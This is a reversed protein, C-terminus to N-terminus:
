IPLVQYALDFNAMIRHQTDQNATENIIWYPNHTNPLKGAETGDPNKYYKLQDLTMTRPMITYMYLPNYSDQNPYRRNKTDNRIFTVKSDLTLNKVLTNFFRLTLTNKNVVNQKEVVDNANVRTFSVRYNNDINGGELAINNTYTHATQYFDYINDPQPSYTYMNGDLGIYPQGLHPGGLSRGGAQAVQKMMADMSPIGPYPYPNGNPDITVLASRTGGIMQTMHGVGFSNQFDPWQSIYRYMTNSNVSLKFRGDKAKKTTIIIVGNAARSGYLAAANPGKLVDISEIDDPNIDAAGNGMDLRGGDKNIGDSGDNNDIQMGDVVFLPQNNGTFSSNGRIVIRASGTSSSPPTVQVGAVKGALASVINQDRVETMTEADVRQQAVTLSRNERKIGLASVVVESLVNADSEMVVNMEQKNGISLTQTKMGIFSFVLEKDGPQVTIAYKGDMDTTAGRGTGKVAISVGPLTNLNDTADRVIGTITKQASAHISCLGILLLLITQKM